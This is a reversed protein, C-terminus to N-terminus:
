QRDLQNCIKRYIKDKRRKKEREDVNTMCIDFVISFFTPAKKGRREREKGELYKIDDFINNTQSTEQADTYLTYM